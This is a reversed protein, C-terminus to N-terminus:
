GVKRRPSLRLPVLEEDRTAAPGDAYQAYWQRLAGIPGDGACLVPASSFAKNEWIPIDQRYGDLLRNAIAASVLAAMARSIPGKGATSLAISMRNLVTTEDLPTISSFILAPGFPLEDLRVFHFGPEVLHYHITTAVDRGLIRGSSHQKLELVPGTRILEPRTPGNGHVTVFHASDCSNELIELSRAKVTLEATRWATWAGHQYDDLVPLERLPERSDRHRWVFIMGYREVIPWAAMKAKPPIKSAYPVSTCQGAGDFQWAHFPCQICNGVVKGGHGLHAGLHPCHADLVRAAGDEGRFLV